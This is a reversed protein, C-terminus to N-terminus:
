RLQLITISLLSIQFLSRISLLSSWVLLILGLLQQKQSVQSNEVCGHKIGISKLLFLVLAYPVNQEGSHATAYKNLSFMSVDVLHSLYAKIM